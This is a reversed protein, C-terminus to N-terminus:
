VDPAEIHAEPQARLLGARRLLRACVGQLDVFEARNIAPRAIWVMDWGPAILDWMLRVAERLRRRARNRKVAKGVRRGVTFGCRSIPEGNPMLCLVLMPHAYSVGTEKVQRFREKDRLRYRRRM